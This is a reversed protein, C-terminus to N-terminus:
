PSNDGAEDAVQEQIRRIEPLLDLFTDLYRPDLHSGRGERMIQVADSETMAPRYVRNHVLADYVDVVAV